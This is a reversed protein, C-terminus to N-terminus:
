RGTTSSAQSLCAETEKWIQWLGRATAQDPDIIRAPGAGALELARRYREALDPAGIVTLAGAYSKLAGAVEAGILIGSLYDEASAPNLRGDVLRVRTSFLTASLVPDEIAKLVGAEFAGPDNVSVTMDRGLVSHEKLLAFLEGTMYSRFDVIRGKEVRVWKSHTGPCIATASEGVGLAGLVQVDEGRMVDVLKGNRSLCVGPVIRIGSDPRGFDRALDAAGVPCARYGTEVWGHRSGIMGCVLVPTHATRWDSILTNLVASFDQGSLRTVGNNAARREIIAGGPDIAFARLNTTGWDVGILTAAEAM